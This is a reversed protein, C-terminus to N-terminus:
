VKLLTFHICQFNTLLLCCSFTRKADFDSRDSFGFSFSHKALYHFNYTNQYIDFSIYHITCILSTNLTCQKYQFRYSKCFFICGPFPANQIFKYKKNKKKLFYSRIIVLFLSEMWNWNSQLWDPIKFIHLDITKWIYRIGGLEYRIITYCISMKRKKLASLDTMFKSPLALNSTDVINVCCM